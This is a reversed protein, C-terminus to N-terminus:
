TDDVRMSGPPARGLRPARRHDLHLPERGRGDRDAPERSLGQPSLSSTFVGGRDSARLVPQPLPVSAPPWRCTGTTRSPAVIAVVECGGAVSLTAAVLTLRAARRAPADFPRYRSSVRPSGAEISWGTASIRGREDGHAPAQHRETGVRVTVAPGVDRPRREPLASASPSRSSGAAVGRSTTRASAGLSRDIEERGKTVRRDLSEARHAEGRAAPAPTRAGRICSDTRRRAQLSAGRAGITRAAPEARRSSRRRNARCDLSSSAIRTLPVEQASEPTSARGERGGARAELAVAVANKRSGGVAQRRSAIDGLGHGDHAVPGLLILDLEHAAVSWEWAGVPWCGRAGGEPAAVAAAGRPAPRLPTPRRARTGPTRRAGADPRPAAADGVGEAARWRRTRSDVSRRPARRCPWSGGAAPAREVDRHEAYRVLLDELGAALQLVDTAAEVRV